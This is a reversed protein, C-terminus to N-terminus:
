GPGSVMILTHSGPGHLIRTLGPYKIVRILGMQGACFTFWSSLGSSEVWNGGQHTDARSISLYMYHLM